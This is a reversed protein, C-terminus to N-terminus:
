KLLKERVPWGILGCLSFLFAVIWYKFRRTKSDSYPENDLLDFWGAEDLFLDVGWMKVVWCKM